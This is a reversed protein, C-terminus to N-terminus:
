RHLVETGQYETSRVEYHYGVEDHIVECQAM